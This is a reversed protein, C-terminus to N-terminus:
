ITMFIKDALSLLIHSEIVLAVPIYLIYVPFLKSSIKFAQFASSIALIMGKVTM